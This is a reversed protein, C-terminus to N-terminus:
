PMDFLIFEAGKGWSLKLTEVDTIAAGDGATLSKSDVQVDGKIVQVWLHRHPYTKHNKEGADQAKAVYMDVDQNMTISGGRGKHSAVLILDSCGFSDAFNKQAYGPEVGVKDPKIWIQLFHTEKGPINNYESHRIGTGASMRQVEGPKIVAVNGMSDKHALEGDIVYSIIEMDRHPHTDFGTGGEIRDENIVRLPGFGMFNEDYYEAFSFTHKSNLWGHQALGRENSKRVQIM